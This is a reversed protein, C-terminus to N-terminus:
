KEAMFILVGSSKILPPIQHHYPIIKTLEAYFWMNNGTMLVTKDLHNLHPTLFYSRFIKLHVEGYVSINM